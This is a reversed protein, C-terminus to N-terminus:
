VIVAVSAEEFEADAVKETLVEIVSPGVVPGTPAVIVTVPVPKADDDVIVILYSPAVTVVDGVVTAVEVIPDKLAVKWAGADVWPTWRTVATSTAESLEDAVNLMVEDILRLGVDLM